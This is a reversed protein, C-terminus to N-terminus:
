AIKSTLQGHGIAKTTRPHPTDSWGKWRPREGGMEGDWAQFQPERSEPDSCCAVSRICMLLM